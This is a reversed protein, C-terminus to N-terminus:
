INNILQFNIILAEEVLFREVGSTQALAAVIYVFARYALKLQLRSDQDGAQWYM